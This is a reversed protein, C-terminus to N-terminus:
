LFHLNDNPTYILIISHPFLYFHLISTHMLSLWLLVSLTSHLAHSEENGASTIVFNSPFMTIFPTSEPQSIVVPGNDLSALPMILSYSVSLLWFLLLNDNQVSSLIILRKISKFSIILGSLIKLPLWSEKCGLSAATRIKMGELITHVM